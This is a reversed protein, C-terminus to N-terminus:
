SAIKLLQFIVVLGYKKTAKKQNNANGSRAWISESINETDHNWIEINMWINM